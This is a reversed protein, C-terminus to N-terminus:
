RRRTAPGDVGEVYVPLGGLRDLVTKLDDARMEGEFKADPNSPTSAEHRSPQAEPMAQLVVQPSGTGRYGSGSAPINLTTDRGTYYAPDIEDLVTVNAGSPDDEPTADEGGGLLFVGLGFTGVALGYMIMDRPKM